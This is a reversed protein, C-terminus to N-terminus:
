RRTSPASTTQAPRTSATSIPATDAVEITGARGADASAGGAEAEDAVVEGVVASEASAQARAGTVVIGQAPAAPPPPPAAMSPRPANDRERASNAALKKESEPVTGDFKKDWWLKQADWMAVVQTLRGEQAAREARDADARLEAYQAQLPKPYNSPPAIDSQVYDNPTELVVFSAQPTAVNYRRAMAALDDPKKETAEVGLRQRAWLAGPGAFTPTRNSSATFRRPAAEGAM